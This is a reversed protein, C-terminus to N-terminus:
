EGETQPEEITIATPYEFVGIADAFEVGHKKVNAEAKASDWHYNM